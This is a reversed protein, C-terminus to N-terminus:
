CWVGAYANEDSNAIWSAWTLIILHIHPTYCKHLEGQTQHYIFSLISFNCNQM